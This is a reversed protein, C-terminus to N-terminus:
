LCIGDFSSNIPSPGSRERGLPQGHLFANVVVHEEEALLVANLLLERDGVHHQQGAFQFGESQGRQFRHGALDHRDGGADPPMGSTM